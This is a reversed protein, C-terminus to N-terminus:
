PATLVPVPSITLPGDFSCSGTASGGGPAWSTSQITMAGSTLISGVLTGQSCAGAVTSVRAGTVTFPALGEDIPGITVNWPFASLAFANCLAGGPSASGGTIAGSHGGVHVTLMLSVKCNQGLITVLQGPGTAAAYSGPAVHASAATALAVSTTLAAATPLVSKWFM